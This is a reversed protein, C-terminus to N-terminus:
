RAVGFTALLQEPDEQDGRLDLTPGHLLEALLAGTMAEVDALQEESLRGRRRLREIHRDRIERAHSRLRTIADSQARSALWAVFRDRESNLEGRLRRESARSLPSRTAVLRGLRDLDLLRDGLLAAAEPAVARPSSLDIVVAGARVARAELRASATRLAIAIVAYEGAHALAGPMPRSSHSSGTRPLEEAIRRARDASTSAITCVMGSAALRTALLLGMEGTGAVLATSGGAGSIRDMAWAAARDALSRDAGPQAAARVRKGFRIARRLLENLIPGTEGRALATEYAERLQGLVQEEALIASDFGAGVMFVREVAASGTWRRLGPPGESLAEGVAILEVRHCTHLLLRESFGSRLRGLQHAVDERGETPMDRYTAALVVLRELSRSDEAVSAM